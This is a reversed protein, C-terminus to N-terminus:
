RPGVQVPLEALWREVAARVAGSRTLRHQWRTEDLSALLDAPLSVTVSQAASPAPRATDLKM